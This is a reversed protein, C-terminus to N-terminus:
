PRYSLRDKLRRQELLLLVDVSHGAQKAKHIRHQLDWAEQYAITGLDVILVKKTMQEM